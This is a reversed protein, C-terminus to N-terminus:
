EDAIIQTYPCQLTADGPQLKIEQVGLKLKGLLSNEFKKRDTDQEESTEDPDRFYNMHIVEVKM